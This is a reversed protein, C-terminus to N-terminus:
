GKFVVPIPSSVRYFGEGFGEFSARRVKPTQTIRDIYLYKFYHRVIADNTNNFGTNAAEVSAMDLWQRDITTCGVPL